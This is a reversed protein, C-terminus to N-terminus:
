RIETKPNPREDNKRQQRQAEGDCGSEGGRGVRHRLPANVLNLQLSRGVPVRKEVHAEGSHEVVPQFADLRRPKVVAIANIADPEHRIRLASPLIFGLRIAPFQGVLRAFEGDRRRALIIVPRHADVVGVMKGVRVACRINLDARRNVVPEIRRLIQLLFRELRERRRREVLRPHQERWLPRRIPCIERRRQPRQGALRRM